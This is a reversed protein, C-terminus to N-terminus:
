LILNPRLPARGETSCATFDLVARHCLLPIIYYLIMGQYIDGVKKSGKRRFKPRIVFEVRSIVPFM